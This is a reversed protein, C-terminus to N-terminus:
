KQGWFGIAPGGPAQVISIWGGSGPISTPPMMETAGAKVAKAHAAKIDPVECYPITGPPEPGNNGRIGGGTQDGFDWMHYQSGDPMPMTSFKWGLVKEAWARTAPPDASAIETHSIFGPRVKRQASPGTSKSAKRAPRASKRAGKKASKPSKGAAM